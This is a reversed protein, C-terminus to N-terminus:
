ANLFETFSKIRYSEKLLLYKFGNKECEYRLESFDKSKLKFVFKKFDEPLWNKTDEDIINEPHKHNMLFTYVQYKIQEDENRVSENSQLDLNDDDLSITYDNYIDLAIQFLDEENKECWTEIEEKEKNLSSIQSSSFVQKNNEKYEKFDYEPYFEVGYNDYINKIWDQVDKLKKINQM